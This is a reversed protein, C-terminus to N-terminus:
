IRETVSLSGSLSAPAVDSLANKVNVEKRISFLKLVKIKCQSIM